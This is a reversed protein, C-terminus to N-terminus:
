GRPTTEPETAVSNLLSELAPRSTQAVACVVHDGVIRAAFQYDGSRSCVVREGADLRQKTRPFHALQAKEFVLLSVPVKGYDGMTVAVPVDAVHCFRAGAPKFDMASPRYAFASLQMETRIKEAFENPVSEGFEPATIRYIYANHCEEAAAALELPRTNALLLTVAIAVIGAAAAGVPWLAFWTRSAMPAIKAEVDTWLAGTREGAGVAKRIREDFKAEAACLGACEDCVELHQQLDSSDKTELESDLYLQLFRRAEGCKM